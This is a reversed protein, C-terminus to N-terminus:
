ELSNASKGRDQGPVPAVQAASKAKAKGVRGLLDKKPDKQRREWANYDSWYQKVATGFASKLTKNGELDADTLGLASLADTNDHTVCYEHNNLEYRFAGVAFFKDKMAAELEQTHQELMDHLRKGDTRLYFGGTNGLKYIKDTDDPTLGFKRMGEAFQDKSFAFFMPFENVERQHRARLEPYTEPKETEL